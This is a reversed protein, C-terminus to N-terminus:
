AKDLEAEYEDLTDKLSKTMGPEAVQVAKKQLEVAKALDGQEYYCRALTDIISADKGETLEDARAAWRTAAVKVARSIDETTITNWSISNLLGSSDWNDRAIQEGCALAKDDEKLRKLLLDYKIMQMNLNGPDDALVADIKKIVAGCQAPTEASRVENMLARMASEQEQKKQYEAVAADRDWTGNVVEELPKDMTMPHGIWEVHGDKGVIFASPIGNRGAARMWTASMSEDDDVAVTYNMKEGQEDVFQSVTLQRDAQTEERQWIATGVVTVGTDEYKKQLETLHPIGRICPGCWTAWFEMVYVQGEDFKSVPKGKIWTGVKIAPAKDGVALTVTPTTQAVPQAAAPQIPTAPVTQALVSGSCLSLIASSIIIRKM